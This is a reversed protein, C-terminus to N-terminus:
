FINPLLYNVSRWRLGNGGMKPARIKKIHRVNDESRRSHISHAREVSDM